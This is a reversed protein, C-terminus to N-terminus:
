LVRLAPGGGPAPTETASLRLQGTAGEDGGVVALLESSGDGSDVAEVVEGTARGDMDLVGTGAAPPVGDIEARLLHRKVQGRYHARAVIEQGTYCGKTFSIAGIGDYNLMQPIFSEMTAASVSAFGARIDLWRWFTSSAPTFGEANQWLVAAEDGPVHAEFSLGDADRQVILGGATQVVGNLGEPLAGAVARVAAAAAPGHLGIALLQEQPAIAAKSFVIYKGLAANATVALDSRVRLWFTEDDRRAILFSSRIRGKPTCHAGPVAARTTALAVDCTLQGQLFKAADAGAIQLTSWYPLVGIVNRDLLEPLAPIGAILADGHDDLVADIGRAQLFSAYLSVFTM